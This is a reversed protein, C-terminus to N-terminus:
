NGGRSFAYFTTSGGWGPLGLHAYGNGWYVVGNVIAPGAASAGQGVLDKIIAGTRGDLAYMHGSISGAYVVGNASSVAGIDVATNNPFFVPCNGNADPVDGELAGQPDPTQWLVHLTAPDLAAWFGTCITQGNLLTWPQNGYNAEAIYIRTGDSSAGWEIGGLTSGPGAKVGHGGNLIAGSDPDFTWYIGSKQGAGLVQHSGTADTYTLLNAGAGFDYDPSAPSQCNAIPQGFLYNICGVTWTDFLEVGTVWKIQGTTLDLAMVADFYNGAHFCPGACGGAPETYNNGTTIYVSNRAPDIAPIGGWVAAGSYGAALDAPSITYTKWVIAGTTADVAVESGRFTCCPYNPDTAFGEELSAVGVYVVGNYVVPSQTDIAAFHSDLQTRWNLAGTATDISLLWAGKQTGIYLTNGSVAPSTRSVYGSAGGFYQALSVSWVSAGTKANVAHLYGGWDPFYVVGNVVAPTASVDGQTTFTWKTKLAAANSASITTENVQYRTDAFNQGGMPWQPPNPVAHASPAAMSMGIAVLSLTTAVMAIGRWARLQRVLAHMLAHNAHAHWSAM